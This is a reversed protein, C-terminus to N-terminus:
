ARLLVDFAELNVACGLGGRAAGSAAHMIFFMMVYVAKQSIMKDNCRM